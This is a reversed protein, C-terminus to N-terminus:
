PQAVLIVSTAESAIATEDDAALYFASSHVHGANARPGPISLAPRASHESWRRKEMGLLALMADMPRAVARPNLGRNPHHSPGPRLPPRFGRGGSVSTTLGDDFLRFSRCKVLKM